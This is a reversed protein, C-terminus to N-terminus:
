SNSIILVFLAAVAFSVLTTLLFKKGEKKRESKDMEQWKKLRGKQFVKLLFYIGGGFIGIDILLILAAFVGYSSCLLGCALILGFYTLVMALLFLLFYGLRRLGDNDSDTTKVEQRKSLRQQKEVHQEEQIETLISDGNIETSREETLTASINFNLTPNEINKWQNGALISLLFSALFVLSNGKATLGFILRPPAAEIREKFHKQVAFVSVAVLLTVISLSNVSFAPFAHRGLHFGIFFKVVEILIILCVATKIHKAAWLTLKGPKLINTGM